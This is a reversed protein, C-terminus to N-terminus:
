HNPLIFARFAPIPSLHSEKATGVSLGPRLVQYDAVNSEFFVVAAPATRSELEEIHTTPFPRARANRNRTRSQCRRITKRTKSFLFSLLRRSM